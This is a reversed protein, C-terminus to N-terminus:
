GHLFPQVNSPLTQRHGTAPLLIFSQVNAYSKNHTNFIDCVEGALIIYENNFIYDNCM